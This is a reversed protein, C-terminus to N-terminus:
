QAFLDYAPWDQKALIQGNVTNYLGSLIENPNNETRTNALLVYSFTDNMKVLLTSTGPLSGTHNWSSYGFYMEDLLSTSIVDPVTEGGDIRVIFRALDTASAVWGGHSDMRTVNMAYPSFETQYYKVEDPLRNDLTNGGIEMASIGMPSVMSKIYEKYSTGAVKEIVRGLVSYGFNLYYYNAGPATALLRNALMDTILEKQTLSIDTFMPDNPNNQWGSTHDLLHRITILDKNSGAPPTGYDDGLIAGSGFVKQDLTIVGDQVLKLIAIATVPKSISAIRYLDNDTAVQNAEKDAYGYSRVYVLKENRVIALSVAPISYQTMKAAIAEDMGTFRDVALFTLEEGYAIGV